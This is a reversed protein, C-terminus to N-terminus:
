LEHLVGARAAIGDAREVHVAVLGRLREHAAGLPRVRRHEQLDSPGDHRVHAHPAGVLESAARGVLGAGLQHDVEVV